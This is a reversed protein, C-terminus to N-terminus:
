PIVIEVEKVTYNQTEINVNSGVFVAKYTGSKTYNYIFSTVNAQDRSKVPIPRDPGLDIAGSILIPKSIAWDVTPQAFNATSNNGRLTLQSASNSSRGSEVPGEHYLSWLTASQSSLNTSGLDNILNVKFDRIRWQTHRISTTQPPTVYKFAIYLPKGPVILDAMNRNGSALFDDHTVVPSLTFRSSVDTWTAGNISAADMQGNFNTSVLVSTQNQLAVTGSNLKVNTSFGLEVAKTQVIRGKMFNYDHLIEGSYFSLVDYNGSLNFTVRKVVNGEEDKSEAIEKVAADIVPVPIDLAKDCGTTLVVVALIM